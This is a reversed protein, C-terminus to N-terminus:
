LSAIGSTSRTGDQTRVQGAFARCKPSKPSGREATEIMTASRPPRSRIGSCPVLGTLLYRGGRGRRASASLAGSAAAASVDPAM